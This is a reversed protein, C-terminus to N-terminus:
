RSGRSERPGNFYNRASNACPTERATWSFLLQWADPRAAATAVRGEIGDPMLAKDRGHCPVPKGLLDRYDDHREQRWRGFLIRVSELEGAGEVVVGIHPETARPTM